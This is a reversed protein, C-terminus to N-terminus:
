PFRVIAELQVSAPPWAWDQELGLSPLDAPRDLFFGFTNAVLAASSEPSAFKGSDIENGPAAAYAARVLQVPIGPLFQESM